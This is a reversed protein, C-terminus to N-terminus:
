LVLGRDTRSDHKTLIPAPNVRSETRENVDALLRGLRQAVANFYGDSLVFHLPANMLVDQSIDNPLYGVAQYDPMGEVAEGSSMTALTAVSIVRNSNEIQATGNVLSLHALQPGFTTVGPRSFHAWNFLDRSDLESNQGSFLVALAGLAHGIQEDVKQRSVPTKENEFYIAPVSENIMESIAQYSKITKITNNAEITTNASGVMIVIVNKGKELLVKALTPGIVSGSGGAASHLVINLDLPKHKQLIDLACDGIAQHNEARVKGSGDMDDFLYVKSQDMVKRINSRSTDIYTFTMEAMGPEKANCLDENEQGINLGLGGCAFVNVSGLTVQSVRNNM